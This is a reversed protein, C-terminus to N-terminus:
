TDGDVCWVNAGTQTISILSWQARTVAANSTNVTVGSAGAVTLQGTGIQRCSIVTGVPFPVSANTPITFTGASSSNYEVETGADTLAFTYATTKTSITVSGGGGPPLVTM